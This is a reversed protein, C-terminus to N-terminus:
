QSAARRVPPQAARCTRLRVCRGGGIVLVMGDRLQVQATPETLARGDLLVVGDALLRRRDTPSLDPRARALLVAVFTSDPVHLETDHDTM